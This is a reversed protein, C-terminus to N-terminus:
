PGDAAAANPDLLGELTAFLQDLTFPKAVLACGISTLEDHRM